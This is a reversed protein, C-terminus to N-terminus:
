VFQLLSCHSYYCKIIFSIV